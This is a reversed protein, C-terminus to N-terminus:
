TQSRNSSGLNEKESCAQAMLQFSGRDSVYKIM